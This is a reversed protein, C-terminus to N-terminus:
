MNTCSIVIFMNFLLQHHSFSLDYPLETKTKKFLICLTAVLYGKKKLGRGGSPPASFRPFQYLKFM